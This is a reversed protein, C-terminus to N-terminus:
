SLKSQLFNIARQIDLDILELDNRAVQLDFSDKELQRKLHAVEQRQRTEANALQIATLVGDRVLGPLDRTVIDVAIVIAGERVYRIAEELRALANEAQAIEGRRVDLREELRSISRRKENRQNRLDKLNDRTQTCRAFNYRDAM